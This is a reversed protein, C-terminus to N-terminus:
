LREIETKHEEERQHGRGDTQELAERIRLISGNPGDHKQEKATGSHHRDYMVDYKVSQRNEFVLTKFETPKKTIVDISLM